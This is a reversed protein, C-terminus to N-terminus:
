EQDLIYLFFSYKGTNGSNQLSCSKRLHESVETVSLSVDSSSNCSDLQTSNKRSTQAINISQPQGVLNDNEEQQSEVSLTTRFLALHQPGTSDLAHEISPGSPVDWPCVDDIPRVM